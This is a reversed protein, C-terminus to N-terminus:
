AKEIQATDSGTCLGIYQLQSSQSLIHLLLKYTLLIESHDSYKLGAFDYRSQLQIYPSRINLIRLAQQQGGKGVRKVGSGKM